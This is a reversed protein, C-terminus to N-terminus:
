LSRMKNVVEAAKNSIKSVWSPTRLIPTEPLEEQKEIVKKKETNEEPMPKTATTPTKKYGLYAGILGGVLATDITAAAITAVVESAMTLIPAAAIGGFALASLGLVVGVTAGLQIGRFGPAITQVLRKGQDSAFALVQEKNLSRLQQWKDSVFEKADFNRIKNGVEYLFSSASERIEPAFFGAAAGLVTGTLLIPSVLALPPAIMATLGISAAAGVAAGAATLAYTQWHGLKKVWALSQMTEAYITEPKVAPNGYVDVADGRLRLYADRGKYLAGALASLPVTLPAVGWSPLIALHVIASLAGVNITGGGAAITVAGIDALVDGLASDLYGYEEAANRVAFDSAATIPLAGVLVPFIGLGASYAVGGAMVTNLALIGARQCALRRARDEQSAPVGYRSVREYFKLQEEQKTQQARLAEANKAGAFNAGILYTDENFKVNKLDVDKFDATKLNAFKLDVNRMNAEEFITKVCTSHSLDAEELIAGKLNSASLDVKRLVAKKLNAGRLSATTIVAEQLDINEAKVSDLVAGMWQSEKAQVDTLTAEAFDACSADIKKMISGTFDAYKAQVRHFDAETFNGNQAEVENMIAQRFNAQHAQVAEMAAKTLDAEMLSARTLVAETLKAEEMNASDLCANTLDAKRLSAHRLSAHRFNAGKLRISDLNAHDLNAESFDSKVGNVAEMKAKEFNCHAFSGIAMLARQLHAAAFSAPTKAQANLFSSGILNAKDFTAGGIQAGEFCTGELKAGTWDSGSLDCYAFNCHSFNAKPKRQAVDLGQLDQKEVSIGYRARPDKKGNHALMYDHFSQKEGSALYADVNERTAKIIRLPKVAEAASAGLPLYPDSIAKLDFFAENTIKQKTFEAFATDLEAKYQKEQDKLPDTGKLWRTVRTIAPASANIERGMRMREQLMRAQETDMNTVIEAETVGDKATFHGQKQIAAPNAFSFQIGAFASADKYGHFAVETLDAHRFDVNKINTNSFTVNQLYAGRLSAGEFSGGEFDVNVFNCGEYNGNQFADQFPKYTKLDDSPRFDGQFEAVILAEAALQPIHGKLFENFPPRSPANKNNCAENYLQLLALSPSGPKFDLIFVKSSGEGVERLQLNQVLQQTTSYDPLPNTM